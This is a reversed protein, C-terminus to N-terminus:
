SEFAQQRSTVIVLEHARKLRHLAAVAGALPEGSTSHGGSHFEIIKKEREVRSCGWVEEFYMTDFDAVTSTTGYKDDHFAALKSVFPFLVDDVDVALVPKTAQLSSM